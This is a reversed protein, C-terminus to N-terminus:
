DSSADYEETVAEHLTTRLINRAEQLNIVARLIRFAKGSFVINGEDDEDAYSKAVKMATLSLSSM